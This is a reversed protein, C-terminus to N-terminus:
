IQWLNSKLISANNLNFNFGLRRMLSRSMEAVRVELMVQHVGAVKLLNIVKGEKPLYSQALAVAQTLASASSVTGSLTIDQHTTTIRIEKEEPLIKHLAEKLRSIDPSVELDLISWVKNEVWVTLTTVGPAKGTLYIQHPTLVMADAIEPAVLSVRKIPEPSQILLSKGVTLNVKQPVTADITIRQLGQALGEEKSFLFLSFLLILFLFFKYRPKKSLKLSFPLLLSKERMGNNM